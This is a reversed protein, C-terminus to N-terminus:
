IAIHNRDYGLIKELCNKGETELNQRKNWKKEVGGEWSIQSLCVCNTVIYNPAYLYQRKFTIFM